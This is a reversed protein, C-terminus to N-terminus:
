EKTLKIGDVTKGELLLIIIDENDLEDIMSLQPEQEFFDEDL